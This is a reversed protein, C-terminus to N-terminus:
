KQVEKEAKEIAQAAEDATVVSMKGTAIEVINIITYLAILVGCVPMVVYFVGIPVGLSSTMQGMALSSIQVGGYVLIVTAFICAIVESFIGLIKQLGPKVKELLLPINMHGREGTVLCAGFLSMWAFLYGVLEESWSSPNSLIYRTFVQWCTLLVMAIFSVGALVNLVKDLIKRLQSM